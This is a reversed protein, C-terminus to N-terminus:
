LELPQEEGQMVTKLIHVLLAVSADIGDGLLTKPLGETKVLVLLVMEVRIDAVFTAIDKVGKPVTVVGAEKVCVDCIETEGKEVSVVTIM